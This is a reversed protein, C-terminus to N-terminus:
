LEASKTRQECKCSTTQRGVGRNGTGWVTWLGEAVTVARPKGALRTSAASDGNPLPLEHGM